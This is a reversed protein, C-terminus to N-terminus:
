YKETCRQIRQVNGHARGICRVLKEPKGLSGELSKDASNIANDATHLIPKLVFFYAAALIGVVVLLRIIGSVLSGFLIRLINM